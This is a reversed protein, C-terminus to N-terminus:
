RYSLPRQLLQRLHQIPWVQGFRIYSSAHLIFADRAHGAGVFEPHKPYITAPM